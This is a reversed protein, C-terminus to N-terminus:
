AARAEECAKKAVAVEKKKENVALATKVKRADTACALCTRGIEINSGDKKSLTWENYSFHKKTKDKGCGQVPGHTTCEKEKEKKEKKPKSVKVEGEGGGGVEGGGGAGERMQVLLASKRDQQRQERLEQKRESYKKMEQMLADRESAEVKVLPGGGKKKVMELMRKLVIKQEEMAANMELLQVKIEGMIQDTANQVSDEKHYPLVKYPLGGVNLSKERSRELLTSEIRDNWFFM